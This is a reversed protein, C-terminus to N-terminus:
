ARQCVRHGGGLFAFTAVICKQQAKRTVFSGRELVVDETPAVAVEELFRVGFSGPCLLGTQPLYLRERLVVAGRHGIKCLYEEGRM